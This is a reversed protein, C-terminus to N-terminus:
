TSLWPLSPTASPHIPPTAAAEGGAGSKV